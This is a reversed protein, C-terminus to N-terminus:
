LKENGEWEGEVQPRGAKKEINQSRDSRGRM